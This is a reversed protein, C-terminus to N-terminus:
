LKLLKKIKRKIVLSEVICHFSYFLGFMQIFVLFMGLGKIFILNGFKWGFYAALTGECVILLGSIWIFFFTYVNKEVYDMQLVKDIYCADEHALKYSKDADSLYQKTKKWSDAILMTELATLSLLGTVAAVNQIVVCDKCYGWLGLWLCITSLGLLTLYKTNMKENM